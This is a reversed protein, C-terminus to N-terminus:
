LGSSEPDRGEDWAHVANPFRRCAAFLGRIADFGANLVLLLGIVGFGIPILHHQELGVWLQNQAPDSTAYVVDVMDGPKLRSWTKRGVGTAGRHRRGASDTFEYHIRRDIHEGGGGHALLSAVPFRLAKGVAVPEKALVTGQAWAGDTFLLFLGHFTIVPFILLLAGLLGAVISSGIRLERKWEVIWWPGALDNRESREAFENQDTTM